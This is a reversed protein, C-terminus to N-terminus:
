RTGSAANKISVKAGPVLRLQGDTVVTEGPKLGTTIVAENGLTRALEVPRSEVTQDPKVVFVYQGQQGSQVAQTPVVIANPQTTLTLVVNVFQGPWLRHDQNPFTGKLKITGTTPDVANDVFTITGKASPGADNPVTAEVHLTGAARYRKIDPLQAEPVAFTVYIPSIQNIVVLPVDNVKVLNGAHVLLAGTRGSIPARISCYSLQLKANDITAQDARISAEYSAVSTHATDYQEQTAIGRKMLDAYRKLEQAANNSQATDRALNAEAQQLTAQFNSPDINFLLDGKNVDDGEKFHVSLIEGQVQSKVQVTSYAEVTGIVTLEVPMAKEVVQGVTVPVAMPGRQGGG